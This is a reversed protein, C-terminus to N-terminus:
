LKKKHNQWIVKSIFSPIQMQRMIRRPQKILRYLWELGLNQFTKPARQQKGTLFDLSGGIGLAINCGKLLNKNKYIWLDQEPAGLGVLVFNPKMRSVEPALDNNEMARSRNTTFIKYNLEPYQSKLSNQLEEKSSLGDENLILAVSHGEKSSYSLIDLTLDSGAIREPLRNGLKKSAWVVGIGDPVNLGTSNLVNRFEYDKQSAMIFETNVTAIHFLPKNNAIRVDIYEALEAYSIPHFYIGLVSTISMESNEVVNSIKTRFNELNFEKVSQRISASDYKSEEFKEILEAILEPSQENFFVGSIDKKVTESAGGKNYAIVPVGLAMVEIAFIGFDEEHPFILAKANKILEVKQQESVYGMFEIQENSMSELRNRDPGDGIIKLKADTLKIAEIVLDNKKYPTLTGLTIFYGGPDSKLEEEFYINSMFPYIVQASAGYADFIRKKVTKSNAIFIDVYRSGKIDWRRLITVLVTIIPRQWKAVNNENLYDALYGHLIRAPTHCYSIHYNKKTNINKSYAGSSSIVLDYKQFRWLRLALPITPLLLKRNQRLVRPLYHLISTKVNRNHLEPYTEHNYILTYIDAQPYMNALELLINEAGGRTESLWDHVIAIKM